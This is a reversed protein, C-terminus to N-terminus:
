SSLTTVSPGRSTSNPVTFCGPPQLESDTRSSWSSRDRYFELSRSFTLVQGNFFFLTVAVRCTSGLFFSHLLLSGPVCHRAGEPLAAHQRLLAVLDAPAVLITLQGGIYPKPPGDIGCDVLELAFIAVVFLCDDPLVLRVLTALNAKILTERV